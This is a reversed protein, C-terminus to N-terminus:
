ADGVVANATMVAGGGCAFARRVNLGAIDAFVAVACRQKHRRSRDVMRLDNASATGAVVADGRGAFVRCVDRAARIAVITM